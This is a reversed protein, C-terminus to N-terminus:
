SCCTCPCSRLMVHMVCVALPVLVGIGVPLWTTLCDDLLQRQRHGSRSCSRGCHCCSRAPWHQWAADCTSCCVFQHGVGANAATHCMATVPTILQTDPLNPWPVAPAPCSLVGRAAVVRCANDHLLQKVLVTDLPCPHAWLSGARRQIPTYRSTQEM